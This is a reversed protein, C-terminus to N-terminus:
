RAIEHRSCLIRGARLFPSLASPSGETGLSTQSSVHIGQIEFRPAISDLRLRGGRLPGLSAHQMIESTLSLETSIPRLRAESNPNGLPSRNM